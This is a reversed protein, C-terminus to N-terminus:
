PTSGGGSTSPQQPRQAYLDIRRNSTSGDLENHTVGREFRYDGASGSAVQPAPLGLLGCLEIIFSHFNAREASGAGDWRAIFADVPGRIPQAPPEPSTMPPSAPM